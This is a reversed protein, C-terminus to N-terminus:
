NNVNKILQIVTLVSVGLSEFRKKYSNETSATDLADNLLFVIKQLDDTFEIGDVAQISDLSISEVNGEEALAAALADGVTQGKVPVVVDKM